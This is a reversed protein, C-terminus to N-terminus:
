IDYLDAINLIDSAQTKPNCSMYLIKEPNLKEKIKIMTKKGVGKRSPNLIINEFKENNNSIFKNVDMNKFKINKVNNIKKNHQADLYSNKNIEIGIVQKSNQSCIIGITGIGSFLDLTNKNQIINNKIQLYAYEMVEKNIQYFSNLGVRFKYDLLSDTTHIKDEKTGSILTDLHRYIITGKKDKDWKIDSLLFDEIDIKENSKKQYFFGDHLTIKNRYKFQKKGSFWEINNLKINANKQFDYIVQNIKFNKQEEQNMHILDYGGILHANVINHEIRNPSKKIVKILNARGYTKKEEVIQWEVEEGIIAGYIYFPKEKYFVVGEGYQNYFKVESIISKM